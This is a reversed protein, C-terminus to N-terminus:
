HGFTFLFVTKALQFFLDEYWRKQLVWSDRFITTKKSELDVIGLSLHIPSTVYSVNSSAWVAFCPSYILGEASPTSLKGAPRRPFIGLASDDASRFSLACSSRRYCLNWQDPEHWCGQHLTLVLLSVVPSLTSVKLICFTDCFLGLM